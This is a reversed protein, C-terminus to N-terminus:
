INLIKRLSSTKYAQAAVIGVLGIALPTYDVPEAATNLKSEERSGTEHSVFPVMLGRDELTGSWGYVTEMRGSPMEGQASSIVYRYKDTDASFLRRYDSGSSDSMSSSNVWTAWHALKLVDTNITFDYALDGSPRTLLIGELGASAQGANPNLRMATLYANFGTMVEARNFVSPAPNFDARGINETVFVSMEAAQASVGAVGICFALLAVSATFHFRRM